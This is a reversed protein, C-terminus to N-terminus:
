NNLAGENIWTKVKDVLGVPAYGAMPGMLAKYLGSKSIDNAFVTVRVGEYSYFASHCRTCNSVIDPSIDRSFSITGTQNPSTNSNSESTGCPNVNDQSPIAQVSVVQETSEGANLEIAIVSDTYFDINSAMVSCLKGNVTTTSNPLVKPLQENRGQVFIGHLNRLNLTRSSILTNQITAVELSNYVVSQSSNSAANTTIIVDYSGEAGKFQYSLSSQNSYNLQLISETSSNAGDDVSFKGGHCSIISILSLSLALFFGLHVM